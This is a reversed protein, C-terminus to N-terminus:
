QLMIKVKEIGEVLRDIDDKSNYVALSARATGPIGWGDMLPQCCHHGTRIAIGMKDLLVGIDYPHINKILFSLVGAKNKARGKIELDKINSLAETGYALVENEQQQISDLGVENIFDIAAGLSIGGCINPTGAEFKFPLENYTTGKLTVEKIMEGGSQYPQMESLWKEKGYLVGIGTPAYMKHGSFALFDVDLKQVDIKLHPAAQAADLFVVAEVQHAAEIIEEVPNITGLANSIYGVSVIKTKKNLLLHFADMDLTGDELVPIYKIHCRKQKAIIQWPVLNSHHAMTSLLIEDGEELFIHGFSQAVLNIGETTGRTFNVLKDSEANIFQQIKIRANEYEITAQEALYHAGRHINSNYYTYYKTIANIVSQPKQTTAANDLYVLPKGNVEQQLIPFQNKIEVIKNTAAKVL